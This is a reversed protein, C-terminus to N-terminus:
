LHMYSSAVDLINLKETLLRLFDRDYGGAM